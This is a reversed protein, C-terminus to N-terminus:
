PRGTGADTGVRTRPLMPHGQGRTQTGMGTDKDMDGHGQGWAHGQCRQTDKDGTQTGMGMDKDTDGHGQGWMRIWTGTGV